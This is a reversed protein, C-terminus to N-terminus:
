EDEVWRRHAEVVDPSSHDFISFKSGTIKIDDYIKKVQDFHTNKKQQGTLNGLATLKTLSRRFAPSQPSNVESDEYLAETKRLQKLHEQKKKEQKELELFEIESLRRFEKLLM